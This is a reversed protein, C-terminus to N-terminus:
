CVLRVKRWTHYAYTSITLHCAVATDQAEQQLINSCHQCCLIRLTNIDHVLTHTPCQPSSDHLM